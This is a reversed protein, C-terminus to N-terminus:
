KEEPLGHVHALQAELEAIRRNLYRSHECLAMVCLVSLGHHGDEWVARIHEEITRIKADSLECQPGVDSIEM